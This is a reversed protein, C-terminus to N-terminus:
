TTPCLPQKSIELCGLYYGLSNRKRCFVVTFEHLCCSSFDIKHRVLVKIWVSQQQEHYQYTSQIRGSCFPLYCCLQLGKSKCHHCAQLICQYLLSNYKFFVQPLLQFYIVETLVYEIFLFRYEISSAYGLTQNNTNWPNQPVTLCWNQNVKLIHCYFSEYHYEAMKM